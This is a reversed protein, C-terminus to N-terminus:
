HKDALERAAAISIGHERAIRALDEYEYKRREVGYGSVKKYRVAGYATGATVTERNLTYRKMVNERIGITSTLAFIRNVMDPKDAERCLVRLISGPRNKKMVASEIWADLAGAKMLEESAFGLEEASMDDINAALETVTDGPMDIRGGDDQMEGLIARVCNATEFDKRGMGYGEAIISMCPRPGFSQAYHKLIAAGTPTLLESKIGSDYSPIGELLCATAPAPVPMIGHACKVTGGGTNVPSAIIRDLKLMSILLAAATVDAVADMSGVEHFHIETVPMGHVKSEAAAILGYIHLIDSKVADDIHMHDRVIHEIGAM